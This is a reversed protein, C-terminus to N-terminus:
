TQLLMDMRQLQNLDGIIHTVRIYISNRRTAHEYYSLKSVTISTVNQLPSASTLGVAVSSTKSVARSAFCM